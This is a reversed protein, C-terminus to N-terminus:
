LHVFNVLSAHTSSVTVISIVMSCFQGSICTDGLRHRYIERCASERYDGTQGHNNERVEAPIGM